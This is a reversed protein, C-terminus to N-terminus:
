GGTQRPSSRGRRSSKALPDTSKKKKATFVGNPQNFTVGIVKGQADETFSASVIPLEKLTFEGGLGPVLHYQPQGKLILTLTSGALEIRATEGSLEYEGTCRALFAPDSMQPDSKKTFVIEKVQPEFQASVAAVNGKVDGQFLFKTNELTPDKAGEKGNWVEYHWHELPQVIDHYTAELHDGAVAVKLLGYGPHEYDGAYETLKHAPKTGTKRVTQKKAKAEKRTKKGQARKALAEASWDVPELKLIRDATHRVLLEPMGTGDKNTLIVMGLDDQPFLTVLASFGDINGGHEVQTHGRYSYVVWGLAYSAPTIDPRESPAGIVMQPAHIDELTSTGIIQRGELKGGSLHVKLWKTMDNVSSNISGAPGILDIKRFPMQKITETDDDERYPLSFDATKQSEAVSFNTHTMGLPQFIRERVNDEWSKGTVSEVLYGATLFMLNNYQWKARLQENPELYRLRDVIDKRTSVNNNYWLLDHRPLGSRHTVLDRPTIMATTQPDYM